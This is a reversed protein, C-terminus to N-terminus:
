AAAVASRRSDCAAESSSDDFELGIHYGESTQRCRTVTAYINRRGGTSSLPVCLMVRQGPYFSRDCYAGIGIRSVDTMHLRDVVEGGDPDLRLCKLSMQLHTRPHRRREVAIDLENEM